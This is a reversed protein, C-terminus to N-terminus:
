IGRYASAPPCLLQALDCHRRHRDARQDRVAVAVAGSGTGGRRRHARDRRVPRDRLRQHRNRSGAHATSLHLPGSRREREHDRRRRAGSRCSRREPHHALARVCLRAIRPHVGRPRDALGAQIGRSRGPLLAAAPRRPDRASLCQDGLGFGCSHHSLQARDLPARHQRHHQRARVHLHRAPDGRDGLLPASRSPRRGTRIATTPTGSRSM